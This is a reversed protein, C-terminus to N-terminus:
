RFSGIFIGGSVVLAAGAVLRAGVGESRKLVLASLVVGWLSETAVLPSVVTVPGRYYAEFLSVYSLGFLLGAPVFLRADRFRLPKRVALVYLAILAAGAALTATAAPGPPVETDIALWRVFNDRVAFVVTAALALALGLRRIHEPRGREGVLLLGGAVILVAGVFARRCRSM